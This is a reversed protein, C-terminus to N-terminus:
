KSFFLSIVSTLKVHDPTVELTAHNRSVRKDNCQFLFDTKIAFFCLLSVQLLPGRGLIHAGLSFKNLAEEEGLRSIEVFM